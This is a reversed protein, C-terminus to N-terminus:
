SRPPARSEATGEKKPSAGGRKVGRLERWIRVYLRTSEGWGRTLLGAMDLATTSGPSSRRKAWSSLRKLWLRRSLM